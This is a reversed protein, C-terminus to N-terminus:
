GCEGVPPEPAKETRAREKAAEVVLLALHHLVHVNVLRGRLALHAARIGVGVGDRDAEAPFADRGVAGAGRELLRPLMALM